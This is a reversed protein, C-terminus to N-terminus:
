GSCQLSLSDSSPGALMIKIDSDVSLPLLNGDNKLLTVSERVLDRAVDRDAECGVSAVQEANSTPFANEFLGLTVVTVTLFTSVKSLFPVLQYMGLDKKLQLVRGTSLAIRDQSVRGDQVLQILNETFEYDTAVQQVM